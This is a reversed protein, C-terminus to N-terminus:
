YPTQRVVMTRAPYSVQVGIYSSKQQGVAKPEALVVKRDDRCWVSTAAPEDGNLSRLCDDPL